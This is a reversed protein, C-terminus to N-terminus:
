LAFRLDIGGIHSRTPFVLTRVEGPGPIATVSLPPTIEITCGDRALMAAANGCIINTLEKVSDLMLEASDLEGDEHLLAAVIREALPQAVSLFYRVPKSGDLRVSVTVFYKPARAEETADLVIGRGIKLPTGVVRLFMKRTADVVARVIDACDVEGPVTVQRPAYRAQLSGFAELEHALVDESIHGLRLLADGLCLNNNKQFTSIVAIQERTLLGLAVAASGFELDALCQRSKIVEVQAPTLLGKKIAIDGFRQNRQDQFDLAQLLQERSIIWRDILYEGFFQLGLYEKM